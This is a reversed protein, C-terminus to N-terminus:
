YLCPTAKFACDDGAYVASCDVPNGQRRFDIYASAFHQLRGSSLM